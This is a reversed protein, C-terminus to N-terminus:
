ECDYSGTSDNYACILGPCCPASSSDGCFTTSAACLQCQNSQCSVGYEGSQDCCPSTDDCFADYAVCSAGTGGGDGSTGGGSSPLGGGNGGGAGTSTDCSVGDRRGTGEYCRNDECCGFACSYLDCTSSCAFAGLVAAFLLGRVIQM